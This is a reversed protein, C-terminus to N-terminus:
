ERSSSPAVAHLAGARSDTPQSGYLASCRLWRLWAATCRAANWALYPVNYVPAAPAATALVQISMRLTSIMAAQERMGAELIAVQDVLGVTVVSQRRLEIVARPALGTSRHCRM